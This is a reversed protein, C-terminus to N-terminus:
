QFTRLRLECIHSRQTNVRICGKNVRTCGENVRAFFEWPRARGEKVCPSIPKPDSRFKGDKIRM